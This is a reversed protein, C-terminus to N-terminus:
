WQRSIPSRRGYRMPGRARRLPHRSGWWCPTAPSSSRTSSPWGSTPVPHVGIEDRQDHVTGPREMRLRVARGSTADGPEDHHREDVPQRHQSDGPVAAPGASRVSARRPEDVAGTQVNRVRACNWRSGSTGCTHLGAQRADRRQRRRVVIDDIIRVGHGLRDAGCFAIAEHISPLGFAEGAHITFRANNSRMYEFADLHRSPPYGAEAGAIDFGVVGRTGSGSRWSRSRGHGHRTACRPSWAHAGSPGGTPVACGRGRPSAQSCRTSSRTSRCGARSTSNPRSACRPTSSATTRRPGRRMRAGRPALADPTQMVRRHARVDGPLAGAVRQRRRASGRRWVEADHRRAPRRLRSRPRTRAGDGAAPWRRPPRAAAGQAGPPHQRSDVATTM